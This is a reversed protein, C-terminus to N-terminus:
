GTSDSPDFDIRRIFECAEKAGRNRSMATDEWEVSLPGKYGIHNLARIIADFDVSGRGVTRFDWARRSDGFNLHSGLISRKGDARIAVDKMHVHFIRRPFAEIFNAPDIGQWLLHSPDFNFGFNERDNMAKLAKEATVIDYAIETPHVELAFRVGLDDFYKMIPIWRRAFDAYGREVNRPDYTPYPYFVDWITSGTFGVVTDVGLNVAADASCKMDKIARKRIREPDGEGWVRAPLISKHRSDIKDCVAQGASHNSIAWLKMDFRGLLELVRSCYRKDKAKAVNLHGDSCALELGDFGFTKAKQAVTELKLDTWQGTFLTVPHSMNMGCQSAVVIRQMVLKQWSEEM